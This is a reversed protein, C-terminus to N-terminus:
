LDLPFFTLREVGNATVLYNEELRIGGRLEDYYLGPEATFFDGEEFYHDWNPNLNPQEHPALGVGHGLHHFFAGPKHADLMEKAEQFLQRCSVGPKVQEEVHRLVGVIARWARLQEETVEGTLSFTRCNDANYGSYEPGLDLIYLEGPQTQRQRPSGGPTGCQFDNGFVPVDEGAALVASKRLETYVELESLGPSLIQRARAYCAHTIEIAKKLIALEDEDKARRLRVLTSTLDVTERAIEDLFGSAEEKDIGVKKSHAGIVERVKDAVQAAQDLRFTSLAQAEFSVHRDIAPAEDRDPSVLICQPQDTLVVASKRLRRTLYGTLYLVHKPDALVATALGLKQMEALLRHQRRRCGEATLKM